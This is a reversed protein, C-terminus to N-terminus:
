AGVGARRLRDADLGARDLLAIGLLTLLGEGAGLLFHGGTMVAVVGPAEGGFGPSVALM